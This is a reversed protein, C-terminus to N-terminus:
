RDRGNVECQCAQQVQLDNEQHRVDNRDFHPEELERDGALAQNNTCAGRLRKGEKGRCAGEPRLCAAVAVDWALSNGLEAAGGELDEGEVKM